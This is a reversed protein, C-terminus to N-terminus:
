KPRNGSGAGPLNDAEEGFGDSVQLNQFISQIASFPDIERNLIKFVYKCITLRLNYHEAIQQVYRAAVAGEPLDHSM